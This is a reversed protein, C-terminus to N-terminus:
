LQDTAAGLTRDAEKCGACYNCIDLYDRDELRTLKDPLKEVPINRVDIYDETCVDFKDLYYLLANAAGCRMNIKGDIMVHYFGPHRDFSCNEYLNKLQYISCNRFRIDNFDYWGENNRLNYSIGRRKLEPIMKEAENNISYNNIVIRIRDKNRELADLIDTHPLYTGNTLIYIDRVNDKEAAKDILISLGRNLMADGGSISLLEIYEMSDSLKDLDSLCGEVDLAKRQEKTFMPVYEVCYKCKLNCIYGVKMALHRIVKDRTENRQTKYYERRVPCSRFSARCNRCKELLNEAGSNEEICNRYAMYYRIDYGDYIKHESKKCYSLWKRQYMEEVAVIVVGGHIANLDAPIPLIEYEKSRYLELLKEYQDAENIQQWKEDWIAAFRYGDKSSMQLLDKSIRSTAGLLYVPLEMGFVEKLSLYALDAANM